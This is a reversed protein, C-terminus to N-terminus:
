LSSNLHRVLGSFEAFTCHESLYSFAESWFIVDLSRPKLQEAFSFIDAAHFSITEPTAFAQCARAIATPSIDIATIRAEPFAEHILTTHAGTSCAIELITKPRGFQAVLSIQEQYKQTEYQSTWYDWPDKRDRYLSEYKAKLKDRM